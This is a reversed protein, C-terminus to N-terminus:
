DLKRYENPTFGVKTKFFRTFHQPYKFGLDYAIEGISSQPDFIREKALAIISDHIYELPTKGTAKKILDGFYNPSLALEEAFYRVSPRGLERAKGTRMYSRLSAEFAAIISSNINDRTIFQRDYFRTCYNLFLEINSVLLRKSHKDIRQSLECRIKDFCDLVIQKEQLSIHLAEHLTYSFFSYEDIISRLSTGLLLDPHFLLAHGTPKKLTDLKSINVVQGPGVFVLTGDQYDYNQRGYKLICHAGQKLFVAYFNYRVAEVLSQKKWNGDSINVVSILPHMASLEFGTCYDNVTELNKIAPM